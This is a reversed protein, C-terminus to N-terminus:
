CSLRILLFFSDVILPSLFFDFLNIRYQLQIQLTITTRSALIAIHMGISKTTEGIWRWEREGDRESERESM